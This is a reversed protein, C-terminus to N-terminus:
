TAFPMEDDTLTCVLAAVLSGASAGSIIRPLLGQDYMAKIVGMHYVGM